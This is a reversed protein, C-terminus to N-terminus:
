KDRYNSISPIKSPQQTKIKDSEDRLPKKHSQYKRSKIALKSDLKQTATEANRKSSPVQITNPKTQRWEKCRCDPFQCGLDSHVNEKHGCKCEIRVTM